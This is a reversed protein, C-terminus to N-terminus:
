STAATNVTFISPFPCTFLEVNAFMVFLWTIEFPTKTPRGYANVAHIPGPVL